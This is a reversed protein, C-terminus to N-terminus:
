WRAACRRSSCASLTCCCPTPCEAVSRHHQLRVGALLMTAVASLAPMRCLFSLVLLPTSIHAALTCAATSRLLSTDTTCLIKSTSAIHVASSLLLCLLDDCSVRRRPLVVIALQLTNRFVSALVPREFQARRRAIALPVVAATCPASLPKV